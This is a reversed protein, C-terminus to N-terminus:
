RSVNKLTVEISKEDKIWLDELIIKGTNWLATHTQKSPSFPTSRAVPVVGSRFFARSM